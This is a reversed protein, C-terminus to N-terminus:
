VGFHIQPHMFVNRGYVVSFIEFQEKFYEQGSSVTSSSYCIETDNLSFWTSIYEALSTTFLLVIIIQRMYKLVFELQLGRILSRSYLFVKGISSTFIEEYCVSVICM